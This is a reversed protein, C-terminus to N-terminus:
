QSNLGTDRYYRTGKATIEAALGQETLQYVWVGPSVSIANAMSGGASGAKAALTASGGFQYGSNIFQRLGPESQFVWVQRFRKVGFGLGAQVEAMRMFTEAKTKNDIAIGRGSGSGALFVKMGFNSFVAYGAAGEVIAQANPQRAYLSKLTEDAMTRMETRAAEAQEDDAPTSACGGSVGVFISLMSWALVTALGRIM